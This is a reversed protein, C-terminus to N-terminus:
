CWSGCMRLNWRGGLYPCVFFKCAFMIIPMNVVFVLPMCYSVSLMCARMILLVSRGIERQIIRQKDVTDEQLLLLGAYYMMWYFSARVLTHVRSSAVARGSISWSGNHRGCVSRCKRISAGPKRLNWKWSNVGDVRRRRFAFVVTSLYISMKITVM